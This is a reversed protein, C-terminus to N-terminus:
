LPSPSFKMMMVAVTKSQDLRTVSPGVPPRAIAYLASYAYINDRALVTHLHVAQVEYSRAVATSM